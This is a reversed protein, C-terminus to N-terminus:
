HIHMSNLNTSITRQTKHFATKEKSDNVYNVYNASIMLM